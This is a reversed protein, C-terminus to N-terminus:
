LEIWHHQNLTQCLTGGVGEVEVCVVEWVTEGRRKLPSVVSPHQFIVSKMWWGSVLGSQMQNDM